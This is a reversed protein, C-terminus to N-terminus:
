NDLKLYLEQNEYINGIIKKNSSSRYNDSQRVRCFPNFGTGYKDKKVLFIRGKNFCDCTPNGCSCKVNKLIDGKYIEKGNKDQKGTYQLPTYQEMEFFNRLPIHSISLEKAEEWSIMEKNTKDWFKYKM